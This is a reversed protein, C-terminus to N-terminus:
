RAGGAPPVRVPNWAYRQENGAADRPRVRYTLVRAEEAGDDVWVFRRPGGTPGLWGTRATFIREGEAQRELMCTVQDEAATWECAVAPTYTDAPDEPADRPLVAGDSGRRKVRVARVWSPPDPPLVDVPRAKVVATPASVNGAIDVAAVRYYWDRLGVLGEDQWRELAADPTPALEAHPRRRRVDALADAREARWVRYGALDPERGAQWVLAVAN